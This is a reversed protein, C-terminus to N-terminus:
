IAAFVYGPGRLLRELGGRALVLFEEPEKHASVTDSMVACAVAMMDKRMEEELAVGFSGKCPWNDESEKMWSM